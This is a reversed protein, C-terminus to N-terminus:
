ATPFALKIGVAALLAAILIFILYWLKSQLLKRLEDMEDKLGQLVQVTAEQAEHNKEVVSLLKDFIERDTLGNTM